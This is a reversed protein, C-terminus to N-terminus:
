LRDAADLVRQVLADHDPWSAEPFALEAASALATTMARVVPDDAATDFAPSEAFGGDPRPATAGFHQHGIDFAEDCAGLFQDRDDLFEIVHDAGLLEHIDYLHRGFGAPVAGIEGTRLKAATDGVLLLKEVLTRGPHLVPVEFPALDDFDAPDLIGSSAILTTIERLENPTPGGRIGMELVVTPRIAKSSGALRTYELAYTRHVGTQATVSPPLGTLGLSTAASAAIDKMARDRATAGRDRPLVLVDIDESFRQILRYGKSLSTGGKFIWDDPHSERAARLAQTVWYDKEVIPAPLRLSGAAATIAEHFDPRDALRSM